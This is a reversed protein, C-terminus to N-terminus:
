ASPENMMKSHLRKYPKRLGYVRKKSLLQYIGLKTEYDIESGNLIVFYAEKLEIWLGPKNPVFWVSRIGKLFARAQKENPDEKIRSVHLSITRSWLMRFLIRLFFLVAILSVVWVAM